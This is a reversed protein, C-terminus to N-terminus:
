GEAFCTFFLATNNANQMLLRATPAFATKETGYVAPSFDM